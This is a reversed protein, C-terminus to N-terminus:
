ARELEAIDVEVSVHQNLLELLVRVREARSAPREIIGELHELPGNRFRVRMGPLLSPRPVIFGNEGVRDQLFFVAEQPVPVPETEDGLVRRVGPTWRVRHVVQSEAVFHAFLYGPFLPEVTQWQRSGQRRHVLLRPLFVTIGKRTLLNEVKEEARSKTQVAYWSPIQIEGDSGIPSPASPRNENMGPDHLSHM